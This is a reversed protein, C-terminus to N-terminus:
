IILHKLQNLIQNLQIEQFLLSISSIRSILEDRSLAHNQDTLRKLLYQILLIRTGNSIEGM